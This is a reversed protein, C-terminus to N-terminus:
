HRIPENLFDPPTKGSLIYINKLTERFMEDWKEEGEPATMDEGFWWFWDSGEAAYLEKWAEDPINDWTEMDKRVRLLYEWARNEEDEGIWIDFKGDIWSGAALKNLIHSPPHMDLLQSVTHTQIWDAETIKSYLSHFFEKGDEKYFEWANEGDMIIFVSVPEDDDAFRKHIYHLNRILDDAAAKGPMSSYRFGIDDSLRTDRFIIAVKSNQFETIYPRYKDREKMERDLSKALVREDSAIWRVGEKAFLPIIEKAVSGEAPWMGVPNKGFIERYFDVSMKVQAIADQPYSFRFPLEKHYLDTDYILPLIPHYFPTTTIEIRGEEAFKKHIPIIAKMIEMGKDLVQRKDEETFGRGKEILDRVSVRKGTVLEVEGKQFSPDFWALNYWVQLDTFDQLTYNAITANMDLEKGNMVRKEYLERYRLHPFIMNERNLYFFTALIEEKEERTLEKAPILTLEMCRDVPIGNEYMEIGDLFQLLLSPTLNVTFRIDLYDNLIAVMDYYDKTARLRVWPKEYVGTERDKLYKPQHQHWLIILNIPNGKNKLIVPEVMEEGKGVLIVSNFGEFGDPVKEPNEPDHIWDGDVIFKYRYTGSVLEFSKRYMKGDREMPTGSWGTFDGAIQVIKAEPAYLQFEVSRTLVAEEAKVDRVDGQKLLYIGGEFPSLTLVLREHARITDGSIANKWVGTARIPLVRKRDSNNLAVIIGDEEHQILYVYVDREILMKRRKGRRIASNENRIHLLRSVYQFTEKEMENLEDGFRMMRRNDPDGAGPLGFEDGYLFVPAGKQTLLFTLALQLRKYAEEPPPPAGIWGVEKPDGELNCYTIFRSFDHTGIFPSMISGEPYVRESENVAHDLAFFGERGAFVDRMVWYLPYDLQGNLMDDGIFEVIKERDSITEGFLFFDKGVERDLRERLEKWFITPKHKVADLRAGDVGTENILWVTEDIVAQRVERKEHNLTPIFEDFWTTYPFEDFLRINKRGDALELETFWDPHEKWWRHDIHVHNLVLDLLVKINHRHAVKVLEKLEEMTGFRPEIERHNVPWYGHYGTFKHHPPLADRYAKNPAKYVPSLWLANVGLSTFYGDEIKQIIGRLDGGLFNCKQALEPDEIPSDNTIDGNKFRDVMIFYIVKDQWSCIDPMTSTLFILPIYM